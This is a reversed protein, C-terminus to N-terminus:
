LGSLKKQAEAFDVVTAHTYHQTMSASKHRALKQMVFDPLGALQGLSVYTHRLSHFSIRRERRADLKVGVADMVRNFSGVIRRTGAPKGQDISLVYGTTGSAKVIKRLELLLADPIPVKGSSGWKPARPTDEDAPIAQAVILAKGALDVDEWRLGRVEGLRLGCLCGLLVASRDWPTLSDHAIIAKVEDITLTGREKSHEEVKIVGALPDPLRAGKAWRRLATKLAQLAINQGRPGCGTKSCWLQWAEVEALGVDSVRMKKFPAHTQVRLRIAQRCTEIYRPSLAKGRLAKLKAYDSDLSWFSDLYELLGAGATDNLRVRARGEAEERNETDLAVTRNYRKARANWYRAYWVAGRLYLQFPQRTKM